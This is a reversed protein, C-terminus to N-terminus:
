KKKKNRDEKDKEISLYHSTFAVILQGVSISDQAGGTEQEM